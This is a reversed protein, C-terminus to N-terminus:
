RGRGEVSQAVSLLRSSLKLGRADAATLSAAFRVRGGEAVFNLVGGLKLGAAQETVVLVPGATAEIVEKLRADRRNSVFLVHVGTAPTGEPIRRVQVPRSDITHGTAIQELDAAVEDDGAVGIVLPQDPRQFTGAPWEVFAPFKFLFAAKVASESPTPVQARAVAAAFVCLAICLARRFTM